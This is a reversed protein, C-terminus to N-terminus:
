LLAKLWKKEHSDDIVILPTRFHLQVSFPHTRSSFYDKLSAPTSQNPAIVKDRNSFSGKLVNPGQNNTRYLKKRM